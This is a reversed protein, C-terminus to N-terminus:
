VIKQTSVLKTKHLIGMRATHTQRTEKVLHNSVNTLGPLTQNKRSLFRLDQRSQPRFETSSIRCTSQGNDQNAPDRDKDEPSTQLKGVAAEQGQADTMDDYEPPQSEPPAAEDDLKAPSAESHGAQATSAQKSPSVMSANTEAPLEKPKEAEKNAGPPAADIYSPSKPNSPDKDREKKAEKVMKLQSALKKHHAEIMRKAGRYQQIM